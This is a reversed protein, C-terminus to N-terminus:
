QVREGAEYDIRQGPGNFYPSSRKNSREIASYGAWGAFNGEQTDRGVINMEDRGYMLAEITSVTGGSSIEYCFSWVIYIMYLLVVILIVAIAVSFAQAVGCSFAKGGSLVYESLSLHVCVDEVIFVGIIFAIDVIFSIVMYYLYLRINMDLRYSVGWLAIVIIPIGALCWGATFVQLLQSSVYPYTNLKLVVNGIALACCFVNHILHYYLIIKVGAALPICCCFNRAPSLM